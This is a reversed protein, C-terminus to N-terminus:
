SSKIKFTDKRDAANLADSEKPKELNVAAASLAVAVSSKGSLCRGKLDTEGKKVPYSKLRKACQM